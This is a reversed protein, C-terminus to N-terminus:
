HSETRKSCVSGNKPYARIVTLKVQYVYGRTCMPRFTVTSCGLGLSAIAYTPLSLLAIM